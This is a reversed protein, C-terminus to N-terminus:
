NRERNTKIRLLKIAYKRSYGHVDVMTDILISKVERHRNIYQRQLKQLLKNKVKESM